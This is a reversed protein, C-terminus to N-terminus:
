NRPMEPVATPTGSFPHAVPDHVVSATPIPPPQALKHASTFSVVPEHIVM